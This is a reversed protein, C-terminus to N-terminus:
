ISYLWISTVNEKGEKILLKKIRQVKGSQM